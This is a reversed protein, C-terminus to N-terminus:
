LYYGRIDRVFDNYLGKVYEPEISVVAKPNKMMWSFFANLNTTDFSISDYNKEPKLSSPIDSYYDSVADDCDESYYIKLRKKEHRHINLPHLLHQNLQFKKDSIYGDPTVEVSSMRDLYFHRIDGADRCFAVFCWRGRHAILGRGESCRKRRGSASDYEFCLIKRRRLSDHILALAESESASKQANHEILPQDFIEDIFLAEPINYFLKASASELLSSDSNKRKLRNVSRFLVSALTRAEEISFNLEPLYHIESAPVYVHDLYERGGASVSGPFHHILELGLKKLDEKDREFKRRATEPDGQYALPISKKIQSFSLGGPHNLFTLYLCAIRERKEIKESNEREM